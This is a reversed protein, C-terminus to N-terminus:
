YFRFGKQEAMKSDQKSEGFRKAQLLQKEMWSEAELHVEKAGEVSILGGFDITAVKREHGAKNEGKLIISKWGEPQEEPSKEFVLRKDVTIKGCNKFIFKHGNSEPPTRIKVKEDAVLKAQKLSSDVHIDISKSKNITIAGDCGDILANNGVEVDFDGNLNKLTLDNHARIIGSGAYASQISVDNGRVDIKLSQITGATVNGHTLCTVDGLTRKNMTINGGESRLFVSEGLISNAIKISNLEIDGNRSRINVSPAELSSVKTLGDEARIKIKSYVSVQGQVGDDGTSHIDIESGSGGQYLPYSREQARSHMPDLEFLAVDASPHQHLDICDITIPANGKSKGLISLNTSLGEIREESSAFRLATPRVNRILVSSLRNM